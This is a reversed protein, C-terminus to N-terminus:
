GGVEKLIEKLVKQQEKKVKPAAAERAKGIFGKANIKGRDKGLTKWEGGLMVHVKDKHISRRPTGYNLFAAKYGAAPANPNYGVMEWGISASCRNGEWKTEKKIANSLSAPVGSSSCATKLENEVINASAQLARETAPVVDGGAEKINDLLKDFGNLTLKIGPM